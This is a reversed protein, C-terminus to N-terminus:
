RAGRLEVLLALIEAQVAADLASTPEDLLVVMEQVHAGSLASFAADLDIGPEGLLALAPYAELEALTRLPGAGYLSDVPDRLFGADSLDLVGTHAIWFRPWDYRPPSSPTRPPAAAVPCPAGSTALAETSRPESAHSRSGLPKFSEFRWERQRIGVKQTKALGLEAITIRFPVRSWLINWM